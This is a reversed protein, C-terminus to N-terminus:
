NGYRKKHDEVTFTKWKGGPMVRRVFGTPNGKADEGKQVHGVPYVPNQRGPPKKNANVVATFDARDAGREAIQLETEKQERRALRDEQRNVEAGERLSLTAASQPSMNQEGLSRAEAVNRPMWDPLPLGMSKYLQEAQRVKVALDEEGKVNFFANRVKDNVEQKRKLMKNQGEAAAKAREASTGHLAKSMAAGEAGMGYKNAQVMGDPDGAAIGAFAKSSRMQQQEKLHKPLFVPDNGSRMLSYDGLLGLINRAPGKIGFMGKFQTDDDPKGGKPLGTAPKTTMPSPPPPAPESGAIMNKYPTSDMPMAGVDPDIERIPPPEPLTDNISSAADPVEPVEPVEPTEKKKGFINALFGM